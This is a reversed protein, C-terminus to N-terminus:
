NSPEADTIKENIVEMQILFTTYITSFNLYGTLKYLYKDRTM